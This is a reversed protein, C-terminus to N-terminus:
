SYHDSSSIVIAFLTGQRTILIARTLSALCFLSFVSLVFLIIISDLCSSFDRSHFTVKRKHAIWIKLILFGCPSPTLSLQLTSSPPPSHLQCPELINIKSDHEWHFSKSLLYIWLYVSPNGTAQPETLSNSKNIVSSQWQLHFLAAYNIDPSSLSNSIRGFIPRTKLSNNQEKM